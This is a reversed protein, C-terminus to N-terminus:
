CREGREFRKRAREYAESNAWWGHLIALNDVDDITLEAFRMGHPPEPATEGGITVEFLDYRRINILYRGVKSALYRLLGSKGHRRAYLDLGIRLDMLKPNNRLATGVATSKFRDWREQRRLASKSEFVTLCYNQHETNTFRSKYGEGGRIYDIERVGSQIYDETQLYTIVTGPSRKYYFQTYASTYLYVTDNVHFSFYIAIPQNRHFLCTLCIRDEPAFKRVLQRYFDMNEADLFKSPTATGDWRHLHLHYFPELLRLIEETDYIRRFKMGGAREYYNMYTRINRLKKLKLKFESQKGAPGDYVYSFTPELPRLQYPVELGPMIEQLCRLTESRDSIQDLEIRGFQDRQELLYDVFARVVPEVPSAILFDAYDVNPTGMFELKDGTLMLPAIGVIEDSRRAVLIYPRHGEGLTEWWVSLWNHSSFITGFGSQALLRDWDTKLRHFGDLTDIREIAFDSM